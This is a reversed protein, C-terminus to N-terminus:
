ARRARRASLANVPPSDVTVIAIAGARESSVVQGPESM